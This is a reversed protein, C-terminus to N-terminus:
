LKKSYYFICGVYVFLVCVTAIGLTIFVIHNFFGAIITAICLGMLSGSMAISCSKQQILCEREDTQRIYLKKLYTPRKLAIMYSIIHYLFVGSMGTIGGFQYGKMFDSIHPMKTQMPIFAIIIISCIALIFVITYIWIKKKLDKKFQDM